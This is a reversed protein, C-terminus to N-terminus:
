LPMVRSTVSLLSKLLTIASRKSACASSAPRSCSAWFAKVGPLDVSWCMQVSLWVSRPLSRWPLAVYAKKRSRFFAHSVTLSPSINLSHFLPMRPLTQRYQAAHIGGGGPGHAAALV